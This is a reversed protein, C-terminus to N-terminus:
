RKITCIIINPFQKIVRPKQEKAAQEIVEFINHSEDFLEIQTYENTNNKMQQELEKTIKLLAEETNRCNNIIKTMEPTRKDEFYFISVAESNFGKQIWYNAMTERSM